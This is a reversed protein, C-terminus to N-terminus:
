HTMRALINEELSEDVLKVPKKMCHPLISITGCEICLM